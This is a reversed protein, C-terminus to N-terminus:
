KKETSRSVILVILVKVQIIEISIKLVKMKLVREIMTLNM